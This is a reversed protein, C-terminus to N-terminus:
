PLTNFNSCQQMVFTIPKETANV